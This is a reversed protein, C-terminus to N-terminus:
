SATPSPSSQTTRFDIERKPDSDGDRYPFSPVVDSAARSMIPLPPWRPRWSGSTRHLSVEDKAGAVAVVVGERREGGVREIPQVPGRPQDQSAVLQRGIGDLLRENGGPQMDAGDAVGVSEVGPEMPQEDVGAIPLCPSALPALDHLDVHRGRGFRGPIAVCLVEGRHAVQQLTAKTAQGGLLAGDEDDVMVKPRDSASAAITRSMASPVKLDRSLRAEAARRAAISASSRVGITALSDIAHGVVVVEVSREGAPELGVGQRGRREPIEVPDEVGRTAAPWSGAHNDPRPLSQTPSAGPAAEVKPPRESVRVPIGQGVASM